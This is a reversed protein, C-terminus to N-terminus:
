IFFRLREEREWPRRRRKQYDWTTTNGVLVAYQDTSTYPYDGARQLTTGSVGLNTVEYRRRM